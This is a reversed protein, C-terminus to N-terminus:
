DRPTYGCKSIRSTYLRRVIQTILGEDACYVIYYLLAGALLELRKRLQSIAIRPPLRERFFRAGKVGGGRDRALTRFNNEPADIGAGTVPRSSYRGTRPM